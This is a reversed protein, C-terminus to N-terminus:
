SNGARRVDPQSNTRGEFAHDSLLARLKRRGQFINFKVAGESCSLHEAIQRIPWGEVDFLMVATRQRPPLETIARNVDRRVEGRAAHSRPNTDSRGQIPLSENPVEWDEELSELRTRNARVRHTNVQNVIMRTVWSGFRRSDHLSALHRYIRVFVDQAVEQADDEDRLLSYTFRYVDHHIMGVLEDFAGPDDRRCRDVLQAPVDSLPVLDGIPQFQM